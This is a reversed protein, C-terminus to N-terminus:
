ASAALVTAAALMQRVAVEQLEGSYEAITVLISEGGPHEPSALYTLLAAVGATTTPVTRFLREFVDREHDLAEGSAEDDEVSVWAEIAAKHEAIAAFIPDDAAGAPLGSPATASAPVMVAAIAPVAALISRRTTKMSM